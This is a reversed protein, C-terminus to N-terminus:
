LYLLTSKSLRALSLFPPTMEATLLFIPKPRKHDIVNITSGYYTMSQMSCVHCQALLIRYRDAVAGAAAQVM